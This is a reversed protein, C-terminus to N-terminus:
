ATDRPSKRAPFAKVAPSTKDRRMEAELEDGQAVTFSRFSPHDAIV